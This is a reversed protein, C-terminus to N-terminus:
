ESGDDLDRRQGFDLLRVFHQFTWSYSITSRVLPDTTHLLFVSLPHALLTVTTSPAREPRLAPGSGAAPGSGRLKHM